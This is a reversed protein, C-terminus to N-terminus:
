SRKWIGNSRVPDLYIREPDLEVRKPLTGNAPWSGVGKGKSVDIFRLAEDDVRYPLRVPPLLPDTCTVHVAGPEVRDIAFDPLRSTGAYYAVMARDVKLASTYGAADTFRYARDKLLANLRALYEQEGIAHELMRHVLAGRYYAVAQGDLYTADLLTPENAFLAGDRGRRLDIARAYAMFRTRFLLREADGGLMGGALKVGTWEALGERLWTGGGGVIPSSIVHGWWAHSIEHALLALWHPRPLALASRSLVAFSGACYSPTPRLRPEVVIRFGGDPLPGFMAELRAVVAATDDLVSQADLSANGPLYLELRGRRTVDFEGVTLCLLQRPHESRTAVVTRDSRVTLKAEFFEDAMSPLWFSSLHTQVTGGAAYSLGDGSPVWRYRLRFTAQEGKQLAPLSLLGPVGQVNAAVLKLIRAFGGDGLTAKVSKGDREVRLGDVETSLFFRLAGPKIARVTLKCDVAVGKDGPEALVEMRVIDYTHLGELLGQAYAVPTSQLFLLVLLSSM